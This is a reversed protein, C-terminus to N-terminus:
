PSWPKGATDWGVLVYPSILAAIREAFAVDGTALELEGVRAREYVIPVSVADAADGVAPGDVLDGGEVFRIRAFAVGREHLAALVALLVEDADGGRNLIRDIAEIAGPTDPTSTM